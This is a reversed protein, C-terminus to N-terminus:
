FPSLKGKGAAFVGLFYLGILPGALLLMTAGSGDPTIVATFILLGAVAFRWGRRWRRASVLNLRTLLAMVVPILFIAASVFMSGAVFSILSGLTIFTTIEQQRAFLYLVKLTIPAIVLYGFGAGAASLIVSPIIVKGVATKEAPKLGPFVFNTLGSILFPLTVIVAIILAVTAQAAFAETPATVVAHIDPDLLDTQIRSIALQSLPRGAAIPLSFILVAAILLSYLWPRFAAALSRIEALLNNTM